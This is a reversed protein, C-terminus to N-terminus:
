NDEVTFNGDQITNNLPGGVVCSFGSGNIRLNANDPETSGSGTDNIDLRAYRPESGDFQAIVRTTDGRIALCEITGHMAPEGPFKVLLNGTGESAAGAAPKSASVAFSPDNRRRHGPREPGSSSCTGFVLVGGKANGAAGTDGYTPM